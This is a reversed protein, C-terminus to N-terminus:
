RNVQDSKAIKQLKFMLSLMVSVLKWVWFGPIKCCQHEILQYCFLKRKEPDNPFWWDIVMTTEVAADFLNLAILHQKM